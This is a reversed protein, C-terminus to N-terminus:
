LFPDCTGQATVVVSIGLHERAEVVVTLLADVALSQLYSVVAFGERAWITAISGSKRFPTHVVEGCSEENIAHLLCVGTHLSSMAFCFGVTLVAWHFVFNLSETLLTFQQDTCLTDFM